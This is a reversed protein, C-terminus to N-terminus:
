PATNTIRIGDFHTLTAEIDESGVNQAVSIELYNTAALSVIFSGGLNVAILASDTGDVHGTYNEVGSGNKNASVTVRQPLAPSGDVNEVRVNFTVLWLGDAGTPVTVRTTNVADEFGLPDAAYSYNDFTGPVPSIVDADVIHWHDLDGGGGGGANELDDVREALQDLANDVDGPDTNGDWDTTVAPTYTVNAADVAGGGAELDDVREALQDLADDVNGPDTDSDWDTNVAPTYTVSAADVAGGGGGVDLANLIDQETIASMQYYLRVWGHLKMDSDITVPYSAFDATHDVAGTEADRATSSYASGATYTFTNDTPDTEVKVARAQGLTLAGAYTTILDASTKIVLQEWNTAGPHISDSVVVRGSPPDTPRLLGYDMDALKVATHEQEPVGKNYNAGAVTERLVVYRGDRWQAQVTTGFKRKGPPLAGSPLFGLYLGGPSDDRETDDSDPLPFDGVVDSLWVQNEYQRVDEPVFVDGTAPNGLQVTIPERLPSNKGGFAEKFFDAFHGKRFLSDSM